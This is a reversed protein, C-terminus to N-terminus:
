MADMGARVPPGATTDGPSAIAGVAPANGGLTYRLLSAILAHLVSIKSRSGTHCASSRRPRSSHYRATAALRRGAFNRMARWTGTATASSSAGSSVSHRSNPL